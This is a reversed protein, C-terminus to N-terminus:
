KKPPVENNGKKSTQGTTEDNSPKKRGEKFKDPDIPKGRICPITNGWKKGNAKDKESWGEDMSKSNKHTRVTIQSKMKYQGISQPAADPAAANDSFVQVNFQGQELHQDNTNIKLNIREIGKHLRSVQEYLQRNQEELTYVCETLWQVQRGVVDIAQASPSDQGSAQRDSKDSM